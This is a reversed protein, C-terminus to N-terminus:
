VVPSLTLDPLHLGKSINMLPRLDHMRSCRLTPATSNPTQSRESDM